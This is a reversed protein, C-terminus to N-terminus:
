ATPLYDYPNLSPLAVTVDTSPAQAVNDRGAKVEFHLHSGKVLNDGYGLGRNGQTGIVDGIKLTDGKKVGINCHLYLYTVDKGEDYIAITNGTAKTVVGAHATKVTAGAYKNIDFGHHYTLNFKPDDSITKSGFLSYLYKSESPNEEETSNGDETPEEKFVKKYFALIKKAINEGGNAKWTGNKMGSGSHFYEKYGTSQYTGIKPMGTVTVETTTGGSSSGSYQEITWCQKQIALDSTAAAAWYVNSQGGTGGTLATATKITSAPLGNLRNINTATLYLNKGPLYIKYLDDSVEIFKVKSNATNSSGADYLHANNKYSNTLSGNSCDLVYSNNVASCLQFGDGCTKLVWRQMKDSPTDDYLCVNRGTSAANTGYVNLAHNPYYQNKIRYTNGNIFNM